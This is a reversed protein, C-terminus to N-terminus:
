VSRDMSRGRRRSRRSSSNHKRRHTRHSRRGHKKTKRKRKTNHLVYVGPAKKMLLGGLQIPQANILADGVKDARIQNLNNVGDLHNQTHSVGKITGGEPLDPIQANMNTAGGRKRHRKTRSSGKQGAGLSKSAAAQLQQTAITKSSAVDLASGELHQLPPTHLPPRAPIIQGNALTTM